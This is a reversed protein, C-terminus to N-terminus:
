SAHLYFTFYATAQSRQIFTLVLMILYQEMDADLLDSFLIRFLKDMLHEYLYTFAKSEYAQIFVCCAGLEDAIIQPYM